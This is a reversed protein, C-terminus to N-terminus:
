LPECKEKWGPLKSATRTTTVPRPPPVLPITAFGTEICCSMLDLVHRDREESHEKISCKPYKCTLSEPDEMDELKGKLTATYEKM